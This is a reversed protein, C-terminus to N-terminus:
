AEKVYRKDVYGIKNDKNVTVKYWVQNDFTKDVKLIDGNNLLEIVNASLSPTSRLNLHANANTLLVKVFNGGNQLNENDLTNFLKQEEKRRRTLGALEKGGAKNYLLIKESITKTDRGQILKNLNGTGCNFGFSVLADFQNQTWSRKKNNLFNVVKQVDQYLFTDAQAQTIEMGSKVGNTHGYGITWVNVADLYAKLRLGEYRKILDLGNKSIQLIISM